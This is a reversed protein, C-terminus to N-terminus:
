SVSQRGMERLSQQKCWTSVNRAPSWGNKSDGAHQTPDVEIMKECFTEIEKIVTPEYRRLAADSFGPSFIKKKKAYEKKDRLGLLNGPGHVVYSPSKRINKLNGYIDSITDTTPRGLSALVPWPQPCCVPTQSVCFAGHFGRASNVVLANPGYRVFTGIEFGDADGLDWYHM